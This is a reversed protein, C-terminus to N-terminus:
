SPLDVLHVCGVLRTRRDTVFAQSVHHAAFFFCLDSLSLVAPVQTGFKKVAIDADRVLDLALTNRNLQSRPVDDAQGQVAFFYSM